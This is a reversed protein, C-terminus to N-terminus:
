TFLRYIFTITLYPQGM